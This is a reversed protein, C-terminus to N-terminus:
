QMPKAGSWCIKSYRSLECAWQVDDENGIAEMRLGTVTYRYEDM